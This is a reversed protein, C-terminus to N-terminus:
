YDLYKRLNNLSNKCDEVGLQYMDELKNIDREIAEKKNMTKDGETGPIERDWCKTCTDSNCRCGLPKDLYDYEDPCGYCGGCYDRNIKNPYEIKLKERCTM